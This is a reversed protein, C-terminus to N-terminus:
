VAHRNTTPHINMVGKPIPVVKGVTGEYPLISKRLLQEFYKTLIQSSYMKTNKLFKSTIGNVGSSSSLKWRDIIKTISVHDVSISHM